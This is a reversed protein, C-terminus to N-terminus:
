PQGRRAVESRRRGLPAQSVAPQNRALRAALPTFPRQRIRGQFQTKRVMGADSGEIQRARRATQAAPAVGEASLRRRQAQQLQESLSRCPTAFSVASATFGASSRVVVEGGVGFQLRRGGGPHQQPQAAEGPGVALLQDEAKTRVRIEVAAVSTGGYRVMGSISSMRIGNWFPWFISLV